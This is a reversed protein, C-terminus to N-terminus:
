QQRRGAWSTRTYLRVLMLRRGSAARLINLSSAAQSDLGVALCPTSHQGHTIHPQTHTDTRGTHSRLYWGSPVHLSSSSVLAISAARRAAKSRRSVRSAIMRASSRAPVWAGAGRSPRTCMARKRLKSAYTSGKSPKAIPMLHTATCRCMCDATSPGIYQTRKCVDCLCDCAM